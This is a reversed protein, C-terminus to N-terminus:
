PFFIVRTYLFRLHIALVCTLRCSRSSYSGISAATACCRRSRGSLRHMVRCSRRARGNSAVGIVRTMSCSYPCALGNIWLNGSLQVVVIWVLWSPAAKHYGMTVRHIIRTKSWSMRAVGVASWWIRWIAQRGIARIGVWRIRTIRTPRTRGVIPRIRSVIVARARIRIITIMDHPRGIIKRGM